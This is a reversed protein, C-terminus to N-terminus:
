VTFQYCVCKALYSFGSAMRCIHSWAVLIVINELNSAECSECLSIFFVESCFHLYKKGSETNVNGVTQADTGGYNIRNIHEFQTRIM